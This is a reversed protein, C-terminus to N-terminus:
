GAVERTLDTKHVLQGDYGWCTQGVLNTHSGFFFFFSLMCDPCAHQIPRAYIWQGADDHKRRLTCSSTFSRCSRLHEDKDLTKQIISSWLLQYVPKCDDWFMDAQWTVSLAQLCFISFSVKQETNYRNTQPLTRQLLLCHLFIVCMKRSWVLLLFDEALFILPVPGNNAGLLKGLIHLRRLHQVHTRYSPRDLSQGRSNSSKKKGCHVYVFSEWLNRLVFRRVSRWRLSQGQFNFYKQFFYSTVLHYLLVSADHHAFCVVKTNSINRYRHKLHHQLHQFSCFSGTEHTTIGTLKGPRNTMSQTHTRTRSRPLVILRPADKGVHGQSM